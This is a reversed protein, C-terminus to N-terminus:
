HTATFLLKCHFLSQGGYCKFSPTEQLPVPIYILTDATQKVILPCVSVPSFQSLFLDLVVVDTTESLWCITHHTAWLVITENKGSLLNLTENKVLFLRQQWTFFHCLSMGQGHFLVSSNHFVPRHQPSIFCLHVDATWQHTVVTLCAAPIYLVCSCSELYFSSGWYEAATHLIRQYAVYQDSTWWM